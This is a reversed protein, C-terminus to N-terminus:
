RLWRDGAQTTPTPISRRTAPNPYPSIKTEVRMIKGDGNTGLELLVWFVAATPLDFLGGDFWFAVLLVIAGARCAAQPSLYRTAPSMVTGEGRGSTPLSLSLTRHPRSKSIRLEQNTICLGVYAVFCLLAPIGLETGLMLYSNMTLAAAGGEPPSYNKDYVSVANNWGVGFFHDRMIKIGAKWAAVRHQASPRGFDMRKVYWPANDPTSHWFLCVIAVVVAVAPLVFRWKLKGYCWSLYLLGFTTAAWAGRSYSMILGVGLMFIAIWHLAPLVRAGRTTLSTEVNANGLNSTRRKSSCDPRSHKEILKKRRCEEKKMGARLGIALVVGAGMLMGYINPNDWLGMWRPGHYASAKDLHWWASFVLLIVLGFLLTVLSSHRAVLASVNKREANKMRAEENLLVRTARGLMVGVLLIIADPERWFTTEGIFYAGIAILLLGTLLWDKRSFTLFLFAGCWVALCVPLMWQVSLLEAQFERCIGNHNCLVQGFLILGVIALLMTVRATEILM